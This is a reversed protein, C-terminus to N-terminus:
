WLGSSHSKSQDVNQSICLITLAGYAANKPLIQFLLHGTRDLFEENSIKQQLQIKLIKWLCQMYSVNLCRIVKATSKCTKSAYLSTSLVSTEYLKLKTKLSIDYSSWIQQLRKLVNSGKRPRAKLNADIGGDSAQISGLCMFRNVAKLTTNHANVDANIGDGIMQNKTKQVSIQLGVEQAWTKLNSTIDQMTQSKDWLLTIDNAFALDTLRSDKWSIGFTSDCMAKWMIYDTMILFFFPLLLFGQQVGSM